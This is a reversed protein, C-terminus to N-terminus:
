HDYNAHDPNVWLPVTVDYLGGAPSTRTCMQDWTVDSYLKCVEYDNADIQLDDTDNHVVLVERDDTLCDWVEFWTGKNDNTARGIVAAWAAEKARDQHIDAAVVDQYQLVRYFGEDWVVSVSDRPRQSSRQADKYHTRIKSIAVGGGAQGNPSLLDRTVLRYKACHPFSVIEDSSDTSSGDDSVPSSLISGLIQADFTTNAHTWSFEFTSAPATARLRLGSDYCGTSSTPDIVEWSFTYTPSGSVTGCGVTTGDNLLKKIAYLLGPHTAHMSEDDHLWWEEPQDTNTTDQILTLEVVAESGGGPDQTVVLVNDTGPTLEFSSYITDATYTSM